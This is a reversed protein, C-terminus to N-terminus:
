VHVHSFCLRLKGMYMDTGVMSKLKGLGLDKSLNFDCLKIFVPVNFEVADRILLNEPKLDRHVIGLEHCYKIAEL